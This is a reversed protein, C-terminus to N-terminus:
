GGMVLRFATWVSVVILVLVGFIQKIRRHMCYSRYLSMGELPDRHLRYAYRMTFASLLILPTLMLFGAQMLEIGYGFGLSALIAIIFAGIAVIVPGFQDFVEVYRDVNINVLTEFETMYKGKRMVAFRAHHFPVGLTWYTVRSWTFSLFLWYWINIFSSDNFLKFLEWVM